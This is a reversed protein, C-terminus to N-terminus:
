SNNFTLTLLHPRDTAIWDRIHVCKFAGLILKVQDEESVNKAIFFEQFANELLLLTQPTTEGGSLIPCHKTILHEVTALSRSMNTHIYATNPHIYADSDDSDSDATHDPSNQPPSTPVFPSKPETEPESPEQPEPNSTNEVTPVAKRQRPRKGQAIIPSPPRSPSGKHSRTNPAM